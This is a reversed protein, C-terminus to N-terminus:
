NHELNYIDVGVKVDTFNNGNQNLLLKPWQHMLIHNQLTHVIIVVIGGVWLPKTTLM